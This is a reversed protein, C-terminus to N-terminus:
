CISSVELQKSLLQFGGAKAYNCHVCDYKNLTHTVDDLLILVILEHVTMMLMRIDRESFRYHQAKM